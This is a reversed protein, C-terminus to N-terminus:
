WNKTPRTTKWWSSGCSGNVAHAAAAVGLRHPTEEAWPLRVTFHFTSGSGVASEVWIRGGMMEVLSKCISLGLGTGGFRRAMSPDAQVFPQFLHELQSPPIGIGTDRVAFELTVSSIPSMQPIPSQPNPILSEHDHPRELGWDRIGLGERGEVVQLSIEVDGRETFKVANGALNLLIQQLRMRDGVVADPTEDPIRCYFCLGKESARVGLVATIQDLMRRLSFPAAELELKGSEIKASDLLDNLLTLLMDASGRATQLCDKVTADASKPLAVDIMGLIANMPTRLEHSMNALFRSKAANAAEAAAKAAKLEEEARRRECEHELADLAFSLDAALSELLAM